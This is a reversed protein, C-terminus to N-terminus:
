SVGESADHVSAENRGIDPRPPGADLPHLARGSFLAYRAFCFVNHSSSPVAETRTRRTLGMRTVAQLARRRQRPGETRDGAGRAPHGGGRGRGGQVVGAGSEQVRPGRRSLYADRAQPAADQHARSGANAGGPQNDRRWRVIDRLIERGEDPDGERLQLTANLVIHRDTVASTRYGFRMDAAPVDRQAGADIDWLRVSVVSASMDSGHGGANMAIAGGLTGPVGVAWEFGRYGREVLRRAAVPLDVAAGVTVSDDGHFEIVDFEDGLVIVLGDFGDDAVLTNSGNGLVYVSGIDRLWEGAARLQEYSDITLQARSRGGVRYTTKQGFPADFEVAAGLQTHLEEISVPVEWHM